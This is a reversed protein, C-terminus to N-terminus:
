IDWCTKSSNDPGGMETKHNQWTALPRNLHLPKFSAAKDWDLQSLLSAAKLNRLQQCQIPTSTM